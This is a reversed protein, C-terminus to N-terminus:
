LYIVYYVQGAVVVILKYRYQKLIITDLDNIQVGLINHKM